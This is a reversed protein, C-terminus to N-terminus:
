KVKVKRLKKNWSSYVKQTNGYTDKYTSYARVRVYYTKRSKIKPNKLKLKKKSTFKDLINKKFNRKKCVQIEYGKAKNVKKWKVVIKKKAKSKVTLKTIKAQNMIKEANKREKQVKASNRTTKAPVVPSPKLGTPNSSTQTPQNYPKNSSDSPDSESPKTSDSPKSTDSSKKELNKLAKLIAQEAKDVEEQTANADQYVQEGDVMASILADITETTYLSRDIAEADAIAKELKSKDITHTSQGITEYHIDNNKLYEEVMGGAYCYVTLDSNCDGFIDPGLSTISDPITISKLNACEKFAGYQISEVGDPITIDTFGTCGRFADIGITILSKPLEISTLATCDEFVCEGISTLTSPLTVNKLATGDGNDSIVLDCSFTYNGLRTIGESIAATKIYQMRKNWPAYGSSFDEIEGKGEITLIGESTGDSPDDPVFTALIDSPNDKGIKWSATGADGYEWAIAHFTASLSISMTFIILLSLFRKM